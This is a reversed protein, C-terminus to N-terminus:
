HGKHKEKKKQQKINFIRLLKEDEKEKSNKKRALKNQEHQLKLAQQSKTGIGTSQTQKKVDRQIRKPNKKIENKLDTIAPSFCLNYYQKLVYEKVEYDKPESGFIIKSVSLKNNETFEFIGVYFPKEFFVTMCVCVKSM